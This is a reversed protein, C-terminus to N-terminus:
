QHPLGAAVRARRFGRLHTPQCPALMSRATRAPSRGTLPNYFRQKSYCCDIVFSVGEITVSTEAVNTAFVVKRKGSPTPDFVQLQADRPLGAYLALPLLESGRGSRGGRSRLHCALMLISYFPGAHCQLLGRSAGRPAGSLGPGRAPGRM